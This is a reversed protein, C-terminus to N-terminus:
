LGSREADDAAKRLISAMRAPIRVVTEHDPLPGTALVEARTDPDEVRWGQLVIEQREEDLWVTPCNGQGTNPDIGVFRLSM